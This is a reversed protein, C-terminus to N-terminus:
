FRGSAGFGISHYSRHILGLPQLKVMLTYNPIMTVVGPDDDHWICGSLADRGAVGAPARTRAM